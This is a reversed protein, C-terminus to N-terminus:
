SNPVMLAKNRRLASIMPEVIFAVPMTLVVVILAAITWEVPVTAVTAILVALILGIGAAIGGKDPGTHHKRRM